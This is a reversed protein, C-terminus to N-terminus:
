ASGVPQAPEADVEIAFDETVPNALLKECMARARERAAAASEAEVDLVILRGVRVENVDDFGLSRLAGRVAKGEPDLLGPRPTIRVSVHYGSM